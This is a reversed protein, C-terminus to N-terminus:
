YVKKSNLKWTKRLFDQWLWEITYKEDGDKRINFPPFSSNETMAEGFLRDFMSDFGVTIGLARDFDSPYNVFLTSFTVHYRRLFALNLCYKMGYCLVHLLQFLGGM